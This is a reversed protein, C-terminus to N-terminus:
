ITLAKSFPPSSYRATSAEESVYRRILATCSCCSIMWCCCACISSISLISCSRAELDFYTELKKSIFFLASRPAQGGRGFSRRDPPLSETPRADTGRDIPGQEASAVRLRPLSESNVQRQCADSPPGFSFGCKIM